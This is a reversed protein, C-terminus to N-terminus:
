EIDFQYKQAKSLRKRKRVDEQSLDKFFSNSFQSGAVYLERLWTLNNMEPPLFQLQNYALYLEQLGGLNGIGPLFFNIIGFIQYGM